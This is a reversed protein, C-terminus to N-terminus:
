KRAPPIMGYTSSGRGMHPHDSDLEILFVTGQNPAFQAHLEPFKDRWDLAHGDMNSIRVPRATADIAHAVQLHDEASQRTDHDVTSVDRRVRGDIQRQAGRFLGDPPPHAAPPHLRETAARDVAGGSRDGDHSPAM